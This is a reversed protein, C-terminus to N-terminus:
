VYHYAFEVLLEKGEFNSWEGGPPLALHRHLYRKRQQIDDTGEKM